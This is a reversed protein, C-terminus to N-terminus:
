SKGRSVERRWQPLLPVIQRGIWYDLSDMKRELVDLAGISIETEDGALQPLLKRRVHVATERYLGKDLLLRTVPNFAGSEISALLGHGSGMIDSVPKLLAPIGYVVTKHIDSVQSDIKASLDDDFHRKRVIESLPIERAWKLASISWSEVRMEPKDGLYREAYSPVVAIQFRLWKEILDCDILWPGEPLPALSGSAINDKILQLDNPDWYRNALCVERGVDLELLSGMVKQLLNASLNVGVTALRAGATIGNRLLAQRVYTALFKTAGVAQGPVTLEDEVEARNRAFLDKYGASIRKEAEPFLNGQNDPSAFSVEDLVLTRGVFDRMLRGARGRLNAFEYPSLHANERDSRKKIFMQPNRVIVVNAPLNVGQMLTTTCVINTIVGDAFALETVLRAHPPVKGSHFGVGHRVCEVLDYKPHISDGLYKALRNRDVNSIPRSGATRALGIATKRAQESTPSFVINKSDPGLKDTVAKLYSLFDPTYQTQGLGRAFNLNEVRLLRGNPFFETHQTFAVGKPDAAIGYTVSAVPSTGTAIECSPISFINEGLAGIDRVRPGSLIIRASVSADRLERLADYLIKSRLDVDHDIRELNQIEDVVLMGIQESRNSDASPLAREQTLVYVCNETYAQYKTLVRWHDLNHDEFIKRIDASVQNILSITPVLYVVVRSSRLAHRAIALYLAFSKGASTPASIGVVQSESIGNLVAKQFRSLFYGHSGIQEFFEFQFLSTALQASYSDLPSIKGDDTRMEDLMAASPSVGLRSLAAVFFSRLLKRRTGSSHEWTLAILQIALKQEQADPRWSLEDISYVLEPFLIEPLEESPVDLLGIRRAFERHEFNLLRSVADRIRPEHM